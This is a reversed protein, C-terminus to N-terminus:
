KKPTGTTSSEHTINNIEELKGVIYAFITDFMNSGVESIGRRMIHIKDAPVGMEIINYLREEYKTRIGGMGGQVTHLLDVMKDEKVLEM